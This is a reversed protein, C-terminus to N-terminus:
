SSTLEGLGQKVLDLAQDVHTEEVILPPVFRLTTEDTANLIIGHDIGWRVLDRAIPRDLVAGRMLGHGRVETIPGGISRLGNALQEGRETANQLLGERDITELVALSVACVLANGGYTSGHDGPELVHSAEGYTLCAGIPVGSGLGKALPVLDPTIGARQLALWMGTRGMGTQVEDVILYAGADTAIQRAAQLFEVTLTTLGGEGQIPELMIAATNPGVASRLAEIDNAPVSSFGPVLPEYPGQYKAQMTASLAGLTRGHFSRDLAVFKRRNPQGRKKAIKIATEVATAGCNAFFVKDCGTIHHLKEALKVQPATLLNNSTHILKKAQNAIAEVMVPHAHGLQNVAIGALFDLYRKGESDYIWVGEGHTFLRPQRRYTGVVYQADLDRINQADM